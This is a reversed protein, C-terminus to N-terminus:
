WQAASRAEDRQRQDVLVLLLSSLAMLEWLVLFTAVSGAAPVLLMSTVFIPLTASATRSSLGHSAYGLWYITAAITVVATVLVFVAGLPDLVMTVGTLPLVQATHLAISQGTRLVTVAAVSAVACTGGTLVAAARVRARVPLTGGAIAAALGATAEVVM